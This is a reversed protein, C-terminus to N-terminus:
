QETAACCVFPLMTVTLRYESQLTQLEVPDMQDSGIKGSVVERFGQSSM